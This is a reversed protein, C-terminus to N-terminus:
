PLGELTKLIAALRALGKRPRSSARAQVASGACAYESTIRGETFHGGQEPPTRLYLLLAMWEKCEWVEPAGKGERGLSVRNALTGPLDRGDLTEPGTAAKYATLAIGFHGRVGEMMLLTYLSTALRHRRTGDLPVAPGACASDGPAFGSVTGVAALAKALLLGGLAAPNRGAAAVRGLVALNAAVQSGEPDVGDLDVMAGAFGNGANRAGLLARGGDIGLRDLAELAARADPSGHSKGRTAALVGAATAWKFFLQLEPAKLAYRLGSLNPYFDGPLLGAQAVLQVACLKRLDAGTLYASLLPYGASLEQTRDPTAGLPLIGYLDAFSLAVGADLSSRLVGSAVLAAQFPNADFGEAQLRAKIAPLGPDEPSGNWGQARLARSVILNPVAREADACLSGLGNPGPLEGAHSVLNQDAWGVPHYLGKAVDLPDYDGFAAVRTFVNGLSANLRRDACDVLTRFAPDPVLGPHIAALAADTMDPSESADLTTSGASGHYTLDVRAVHTGFAGANIIRTEWAGLAVKRASPLPTHTHGSAIVDIGRVHRALEVDEGSAGRADTGSHSLAVVVQCGQNGRLDDVLAQVASYGPGGQVFGVPAAAPADLAAARGMLGLYGVKLGNALTEVRTPPIRKGPGLFPALDENGNLLLNSAVLPTRFAFSTRARELMRALGAPGGDFEHNGLTACDFGLADLFGLALPREDLTLDYCTGMSWDGSDVLIVPHGATRRVHKVYAAIRAYGGRTGMVGAELHGTGAAVHHLDTTQLLTVRAEGLPAGAELPSGACLSLLFFLSLLGHM